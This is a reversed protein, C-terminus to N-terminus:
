QEEFMIIRLVYMGFGAAVVRSLITAAEQHRELSALSIGLKFNLDAEALRDRTHRLALADQDLWPFLSQV